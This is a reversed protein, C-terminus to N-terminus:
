LLTCLPNAEKDAHQALAPIDEKRIGSLTRSIGMDANLKKIGDIFQLAGTMPEENENVIGAAVGLQCLKKHVSEGYGELVYPM